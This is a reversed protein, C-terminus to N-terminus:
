VAINITNVYNGIVCSSLSPCISYGRGKKWATLLAISLDRNLCLWQALYLHMECSIVGLTKYYHQTQRVIELSKLLLDGLIIKDFHQYTNTSTISPLDDLCPEELNNNHKPDYSISLHLSIMNLFLLLLGFLFM